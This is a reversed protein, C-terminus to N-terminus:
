NENKELKIKLFFMSSMDPYTRYWKRMFDWATVGYLKRIDQELACIHHEECANVSCLCGDGLVVYRQEKNTVFSVNNSVAVLPVIIEEKFSHNIFYRFVDQKDEM